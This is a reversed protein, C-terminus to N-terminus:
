FVILKRETHVKSCSATMNKEVRQLLLLMFNGLCVMLDDSRLLFKIWRCSLELMRHSFSCVFSLGTVSPPEERKM